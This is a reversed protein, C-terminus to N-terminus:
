FGPSSRQPALWIMALVVQLADIPESGALQDALALADAVHSELRERGLSLAPPAAVASAPQGKPGDGTAPASHARTPRSPFVREPFESWFAAELPYAQAMARGFSAAWARRDIGLTRFDDNHYDPLSIYAALVHRTDLTAGQDRALRAGEALAARASVTRRVAKEGPPLWTTLTAVTVRFATTLGRRRLLEDRQGASLEISLWRAVPDTGGLLMGIFLSTFSLPVDRSAHASAAASAIALYLAETVEVDEPGAAGEDLM